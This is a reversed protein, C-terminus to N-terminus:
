MTQRNINEFVIRCGDDSCVYVKDYMLFFSVNKKIIDISCMECIIMVPGNFITRLIFFM